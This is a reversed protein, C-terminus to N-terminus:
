INKLALANEVDKAAEDFNSYGNRARVQTIFWVLERKYMENREERVKHTWTRSATRISITGADDEWILTGKTGIIECYRRGPTQLYDQHVSVVVGKKTRFIGESIDEAKIPLSVRGSFGTIFQLPEKLLWAPYNLEHVLDLIVGGGRKSDTSYRKRYDGAKWTRLNKGVSVRMSLIKGIGGGEITEKITLLPKFFQM